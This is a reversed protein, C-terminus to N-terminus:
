VTEAARYDVGCILRFDNAKINFVVRGSKLISAKPHSRRIDAPQTWQARGGRDRAVGRVAETCGDDGQSGCPSRSVARGRGHWDGGGVFAVASKWFISLCIGDAPPITSGLQEGTVVAPTLTPVDADDALDHALVKLLDFRRTVAEHQRVTVESVRVAASRRPCGAVTSRAPAAIRQADDTITCTGATTM